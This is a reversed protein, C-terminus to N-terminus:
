SSSGSPPTPNWPLPISLYNRLVPNSVLIPGYLTNTPPWALPSLSKRSLQHKYAPLLSCLVKRANRPLIPLDSTAPNMGVPAPACVAYKLYPLIAGEEETSQTRLTRLIEKGQRSQNINLKFIIEESPFYMPWKPPRGSREETRREKRLPPAPNYGLLVDFEPSSIKSRLPHRTNM